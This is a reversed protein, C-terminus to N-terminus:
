LQHIVPTKCISVPTEDPSVGIHRNSRPVSIKQPLAIGRHKQMPMGGSFRQDCGTGWKGQITNV